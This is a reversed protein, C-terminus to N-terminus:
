QETTTFLVHQGHTPHGHGVLQKYMNTHTQERCSTKLMRSGGRRGALGAPKGIVPFGQPDEAQKRLLIAPLGM